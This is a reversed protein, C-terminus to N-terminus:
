SAAEIRIVQVHDHFDGCAVAMIYAASPVLIRNHEVDACSLHDAIGMLCWPLAAKSSSGQKGAVAAGATWGRSACIGCAILANLYHLLRQAWDAPDGEDSVALHAMATEVATSLPPGHAICKTPAWKLGLDVLGIQLLALLAANQVLEGAILRVLPAHASLIFGCADEFLSVFRTSVLESAARRLPKSLVSLRAGLAATDILADAGSLRALFRLDLYSFPSLGGSISVSHRNLAEEM